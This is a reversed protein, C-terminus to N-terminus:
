GCSLRHGGGRGAPCGSGSALLRCSSSIPALGAVERLQGAWNAFDWPTKGEGLLSSVFMPEYVTVGATVTCIALSCSAFVIAALRRDGGVALAASAAILFTVATQKTFVALVLMLMGASRSWSRSALVLFFGTVGLLEAMTDPRVMLAAGFM